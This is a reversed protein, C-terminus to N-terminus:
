NCNFLKYNSKLDNFLTLYQLTIYSPSYVEQHCNRQHRSSRLGCHFRLIAFPWPVPLIQENYCPKTVNLAKKVYKVILPTFYFNETISLVENYLPENFQPEVTNTIQCM